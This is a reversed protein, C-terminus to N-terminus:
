QSNQVKFFHWLVLVPFGLCIINYGNEYHAKMGSHHLGCAVQTAASPLTIPGAPHMVHQSNDRELERDDGSTSGEDSPCFNVM